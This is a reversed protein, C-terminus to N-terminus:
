SNEKVSNPIDARESMSELLMVSSHNARHKHTNISLFIVTDSNNARHKSDQTRPLAAGSESIYCVEKINIVEWTITIM